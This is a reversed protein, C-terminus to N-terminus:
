ARGACREQGVASKGWWHYRQRDNESFASRGYHFQACRDGLEAAEKWLRVARDHDMECSTGNWLFQGLLFLGLRSGQAAAKEAWAFREENYCIRAWAAQAPAYALEAACGLVVTDRRIQYRIFLARPNESQVKMVALVQDERVPASADPFLTCLWLADPHYCRRAMLLGENLRSSIVDLVDAWKILETKDM